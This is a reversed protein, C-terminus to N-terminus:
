RKRRINIMYDTELIYESLKKFNKCVTFLFFAELFNKPYPTSASIRTTSAASVLIYLSNALQLTEQICHQDSKPKLPNSVFIIAASTQQSLSSCKQEKTWVIVWLEIMIMSIINNDTFQINHPSDDVYYIFYSVLVIFSTIALTINIKLVM